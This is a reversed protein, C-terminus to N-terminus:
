YLIILKKLKNFFIGNFNDYRYIKIQKTTEIKAKKIIGSLVFFAFEM